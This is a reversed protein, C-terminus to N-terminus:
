YKDEFNEEYYKQEARDIAAEYGTLARFAAFQVARMEQPMRMRDPPFYHSLNIIDEYEMTKAKM